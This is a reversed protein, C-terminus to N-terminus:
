FNSKHVAFFNEMGFMCMVIRMIKHVVHVGYVHMGVEGRM